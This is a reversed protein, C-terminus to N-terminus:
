LLLLNLQKQFLILQSLISNIISSIYVKLIIMKLIASM